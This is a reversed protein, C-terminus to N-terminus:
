NLKPVPKELLEKETMYDMMYIGLETHKKVAKYNIQSLRHYEVTEKDLMDCLVRIETQIVCSSVATNFDITKLSAIKKEIGDM